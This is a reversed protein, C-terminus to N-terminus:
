EAYVSNITVYGTKPDVYRAGVSKAGVSYTVDQVSVGSNMLRFAQDGSGAQVGTDTSQLLTRTDAIQPASNQLMVGTAVVAAISAMAVAARLGTFVRGGRMPGEAQRVCEGAALGLRINARMEAAMRNWQIDPIEALEPLVDRVSEFAALEERCQPCRALHRETLWRAFFGLDGGAQLALTAQNPHKM